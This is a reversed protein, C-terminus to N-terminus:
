KEPFRSPCYSGDALKRTCFFTGPAKTSAKMAGHYRCLPAEQAAPTQPASAPTSAPHAPADLLGRIAQLNATFEAATMGRVTLLTEHGNITGKLTASFLAEPVPAPTPPTPPTHMVPEQEPMVDVMPAEHADDATLAAAQAQQALLENVRKAIGAAIRHQCWGEPAQGYEFDQCDCAHGALTYTKMPDSASGVEVTGDDLFRVDHQLVLKTASEVRGNVAAPLAAKARAAVDAVLARYTTRAAHAMGLDNEIDPYTITAMIMEM